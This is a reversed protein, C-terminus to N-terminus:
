LRIRVPLPFLKVEPVNNTGDFYVTGPGIAIWGGSTDPNINMGYTWLLAGSTGNDKIAYIVNDGPYNTGSWPPDMINGNNVVIVGNSSVSPEGWRCNNDYSWKISGDSTDYAYLKGHYGKAPTPGPWYGTRSQVYLVSGDVSLACGDNIGEAPSSGISAGTWVLNGASDLALPRTGRAVYITGTASDITPPGYGGVSDIYSWLVAGPTTQTDFAAIKTSTGSVVYMVTSGNDYFAGARPNQALDEASWILSGTASNLAYLYTNTDDPSFPKGRGYFNNDPGFKPYGLSDVINKSWIPVGAPNTATSYGRINQGIDQHVLYQGNPSIATFFGSGSDNVGNAAVWGTAAGDARARRYARNTGWGVSGFVYPTATSGADGLAIGSVRDFQGDVSDVKYKVNITNSTSLPYPSSNTNWVDGGIGLWIGKSAFAPAVLLLALAIVLIQVSTKM